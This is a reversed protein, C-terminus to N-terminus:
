VFCPAKGRSSAKIQNFNNIIQTESARGTTKMPLTSADAGASAPRM